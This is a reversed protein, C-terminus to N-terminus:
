AKSRLYDLAEKAQAEDLPKGHMNTDGWKEMLPIIGAGKKTHSVICTPKGTEAKAAKLADM